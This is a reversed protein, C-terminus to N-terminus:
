VALWWVLRGSLVFYSLITKLATKPTIRSVLLYYDGNPDIGAITIREPIDILPRAGYPVYYLKVKYKKSYYHILARNDCIIKASLKFVLRESFLLYKKAFFGWKERKHEIGDPNTIM